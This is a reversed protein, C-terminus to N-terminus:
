RATAGNNTPPSRRFSDRWDDVAGSLVALDFADLNEFMELPVGGEIKLTGTSQSIEVIQKSLEMCLRRYGTARTRDIAIKDYGKLLYGFRVVDYVSGDSEFGFPLRVTADDIREHEREGFTDVLFKDFGKSIDEHDNENLSILVSMPVPMKLTGFETIAARHLMLETQTGVIAPSDTIRMQDGATPRKGFVVRKVTADDKAKYGFGLEITHQM